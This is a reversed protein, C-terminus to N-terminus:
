SDPNFPPLRYPIPFNSYETTAKNKLGDISLTIQPVIVTPISKGRVLDLPPNAPVTIPPGKLIINGQADKKYNAFKQCVNEIDLALEKALGGINDFNIDVGSWKTKLRTAENVIDETTRIIENVDAYTGQVKQVFDKIDNQASEIKPPFDVEKLLSLPDNIYGEIKQIEAILKLYEAEKGLAAALGQGNTPFTPVFAQILGLLSNDNINKIADFVKQQEPNLGCSM